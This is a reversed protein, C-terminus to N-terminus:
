VDIVGEYKGTDFNFLSQPEWDDPADTLLSGHIWDPAVDEEGDWAVKYKDALLDRDIVTGADLTKYPVFLDPHVELVRDGISYVM